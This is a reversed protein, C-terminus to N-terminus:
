KMPFPLFTQGDTVAQKKFLMYQKPNLSLMALCEFHLYKFQLLGVKESCVAYPSQPIFHGEPESCQISSEMVLAQVM